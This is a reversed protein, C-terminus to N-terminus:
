ERHLLESLRERLRRNGSETLSLQDDQLDVWGARILPAIGEAVASALAPSLGLRAALGGEPCGHPGVAHLVCLTEIEERSPGRNKGKEGTTMLKPPM